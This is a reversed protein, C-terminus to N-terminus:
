DELSGEERDTPNINSMATHILHPAAPSNLSIM